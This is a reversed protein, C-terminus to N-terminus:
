CTELVAKKTLRKYLLRYRINLFLGEIIIVANDSRNNSENNIAFQSNPSFSPKYYDKDLKLNFTFNQADHNALALIFSVLLLTSNRKTSKAIFLGLLISTSLIRVKIQSNTTGLQEKEKNKNATLEWLPTKTRKKLSKIVNIRNNDLKHLHQM